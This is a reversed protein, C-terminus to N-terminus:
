IDRKELFAGKGLKAIMQIVDNFSTYQLATENPGIFSNVSNLKSFSLHTILRWGINDEKPM